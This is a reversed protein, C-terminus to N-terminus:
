VSDDERLEWPLEDTEEQDKKENETADEQLKEEAQKLKEPDDVLQEASKKKSPQSLWTGPILRDPQLQHTLDLAGATILGLFGTILFAIKLLGTIATMIIPGSLFQVGRGSDAGLFFAALVVIPIAITAYRVLKFSYVATLSSSPKGPINKISIVAAAIYCSFIGTLGVYYLVLSVPMNYEDANLVWKILRFYVPTSGSGVPLFLIILLLIGSIGGIFRGSAHDITSALMSGAYLGILTVIILPVFPIESRLQLFGKIFSALFDNKDLLIMLIWLFAIGLLIVPRLKTDNKRVRIVIIGALLPLIFGLTTSFDHRGLQSINVFELRGAIVIPFIFGLLLFIGSSQIRDRLNEEFDTLSSNM